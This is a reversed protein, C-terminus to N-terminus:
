PDAFGTRRPQAFALWAAGRDQGVLVHLIINEYSPMYAHERALSSQTYAMIEVLDPPEILHRGRHWSSM